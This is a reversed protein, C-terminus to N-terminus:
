KHLWKFRCITVLLILWVISLVTRNDVLKFGLFRIPVLSFISPFATPFRWMIWTNDSILHLLRMCKIKYEVVLNRAAYRLSNHKSKEFTRSGINCSMAAILCRQRERRESTDHLSIVSRPSTVRILECGDRTETSRDCSVSIDALTPLTYYKCKHLCTNYRQRRTRKKSGNM